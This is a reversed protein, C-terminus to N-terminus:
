FIEVHELKAPLALIIRSMKREIYSSMSSASNCKRPNFEYTDNMVQFRNEIIESLLIVDQANYLDSMDGLNRMKCNSLSIKFESLKKEAFNM